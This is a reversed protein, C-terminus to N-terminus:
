NTKEEDKVGGFRRNRSQYVKIAEDFAEEDFDPFHVDPFYFEAYANQWLLFNSLRQEGSTRIMLDVPPLDVYLYKSFIEENIEPIIGNYLDHCIKKTADVIEAQGGYNFCVNLIAGTNDKTLNMVYELSKLVASSLNDRRGSVVFKINLEHIRKGKNKFEKTILNMLFDVEEKSRKFNEISFLYLSVIEVGSKSIHNLLRNFINDAGAKHGESRTLGRETAWRGNGDVIIAVHKPIKM